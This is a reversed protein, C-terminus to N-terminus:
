AAKLSRVSRVGSQDYSAMKVDQGTFEKQLLRSLMEKIVQQPGIADVLWVIDGSSWQDPRLRIPNEVAQMLQKDTVADVRAWLAVGVTRLHGDDAKAKALVFQKNRLAPLILWELDALAMNRYKENRLLLRVIEGLISRSDRMRSPMQTESVVPVVAELDTASASNEGVAAQDMPKQSTPESPSKKRGFFM